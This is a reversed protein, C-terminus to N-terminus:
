IQQAPDFAGLGSLSITSSVFVQQGGTSGCIIQRLVLYIIGLMTDRPM